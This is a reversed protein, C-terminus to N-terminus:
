RYSRLARSEIHPARTNPTKMGHRLGSDITRLAAAAGKDRVYGNARMAEILLARADFERIEGAAVWGGLKVAATNCATNRGGAPAACLDDIIGRVAGQAYAAARGRSRAAPRYTPRTLVRFDPVTPALTWLVDIDVPEVWATGCFYTQRHPREATNEGKRKWTGFAPSLRGPNSVVPDIKVLKQGERTPDAVDFLVGLHRLFAQTKAKIARKRADDQGRYAVPHVAIMVWYGNGSDGTAISHRPLGQARLWDVVRWMTDRTLAKEAETASCHKPAVTDVDIVVSTIALVDDDHTAGGKRVAKWGSQAIGPHIPNHIVYAGECHPTDIERLSMVHEDLTTPYSAVWGTGRILARLEIPHGASCRHFARWMHVSLALDDLTPTDDSVYDQAAPHSALVYATDSDVDNALCISLREGYSPHM